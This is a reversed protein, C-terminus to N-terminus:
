LLQRRLPVVDQVSRRPPSRTEDERRRRMAHATRSCAAGIRRPLGLRGLRLLRSGYDVESGGASGGTGAASCRGRRRRNGRAHERVVGTCGRRALAKPPRQSSAVRHHTQCTAPLGERSHAADPLTYFRSWHLLVSSHVRERSVPTSSSSSARLRRQKSFPFLYGGARRRLVEPPTTLETPSEFVIPAAVVLM